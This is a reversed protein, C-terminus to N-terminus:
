CILYIKLFIFLFVLYKLLAVFDFISWNEFRNGNTYQFRIKQREHSSTFNNDLDIFLAILQCLACSSVYRKRAGGRGKM